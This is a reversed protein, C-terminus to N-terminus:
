EDGIEWSLSLSQPNPDRGLMNQSDEVPVIGPWGAQNDHTDTSVRDPMTCAPILFVSVACLAIAGASRCRSSLLARPSASSMAMESRAM